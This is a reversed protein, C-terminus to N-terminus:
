WPFNYVASLAFAHDTAGDAPIRLSSRKPLGRSIVWDWQATEDIQISPVNWKGQNQFSNLDGVIVFPVGAVNLQFPSTNSLYWPRDSAGNFNAMAHVYFDKTQASNSFDAQPWALHAAYVVIRKSGIQFVGFEYNRVVESRPCGEQTTFQWRGAQLIRLNSSNRYLLMFGQNEVIPPGQCNDYVGGVNCPGTKLRCFAKNAVFEPLFPQIPGAFEGALTFYTQQPGFKMIDKLMDVDCEQVSLFAPFGMASIVKRAPCKRPQWPTAEQTQINFTGASVEDKTLEHPGNLSPTCADPPIPIPDPKGRVRITTVGTRPITHCDDGCFKLWCTGGNFGNFAAAGCANDNTCLTCCAAASTAPKNMYDAAEIDTDVVLTCSDGWVVVL